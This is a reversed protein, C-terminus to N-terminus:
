SALDSQWAASPVSFDTLDLYGALAFLGITPQKNHWNRLDFEGHQLHQEWLEIGVFGCRRALKALNDLSCLRMRFTITAMLFNMMSSM